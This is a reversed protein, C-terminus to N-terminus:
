TVVVVVMKLEFNFFTSDKIGERIKILYIREGISVVVQGIVVIRVIENEGIGITYLDTKISIHVTMM